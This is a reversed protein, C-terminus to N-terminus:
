LNPDKKNKQDPIPYKFGSRQEAVTKLQMLGKDIVGKIMKPMFLGLWKGFPYRLGIMQLKWKVNTISDSQQFTWTGLGKGQPGFNLENQIFSNTKSKLIQMSGSGMQQGKWSRRAGTGAAPGAFSDVLTSDTEFPSWNKWNRLNNVQDFVVEPSAQIDISSVAEVHNPLFLPILLFLGMIVVMILLTLKVAKM